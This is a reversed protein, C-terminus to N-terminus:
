LKTKGPRRYFGFDNASSSLKDNMCGWCPHTFSPQHSYTIGVCVDSAECKTQCEYQNSVDTFDTIDVCAMDMDEEQWLEVKCFLINILFIRFNYKFVMSLKRIDFITRADNNDYKGPKKWYFEGNNWEIM